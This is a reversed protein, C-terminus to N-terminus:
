RFALWFMSVTALVGLAPYFWAQDRMWLFGAILLVPFGGRKLLETLKKNIMQPREYLGSIPMIMMRLLTAQMGTRNM